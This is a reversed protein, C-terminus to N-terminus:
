HWNNLKSMSEFMKELLKKKAPTEQLVGPASKARSNNQYCNKQYDISNNKQKINYIAFQAFRKCSEQNNKSEQLKKLLIINEMMAIDIDM